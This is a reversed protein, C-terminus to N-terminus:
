AATPRAASLVPRLLLAMALAVLLFGAAHGAEWRLRWTPWDPPLTAPTAAAIWGNVPAVVLAWVALALGVLAAAAWAGRDGRLGLALWACALGGGLYGLAGAVAHGLYLNQQVALWTEAPLRWKGPIELVHGGTAILAPLLLLLAAIRRRGM